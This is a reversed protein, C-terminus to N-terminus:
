TSPSRRSCGSATTPAPTPRARRAEHGRARARNEESPLYAMIGTYGNLEPNQLEWTNVVVVGLGFYLDESFGPYSATTPAFRERSAEPSILAGTGLAKAGKIVDGITATMITGNGITWSPSWSTSDEYPGRDTTYAHLVPAPIAPLTSITTQRLGLPGFVRRHM